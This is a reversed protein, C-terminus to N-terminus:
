CCFIHPLCYASLMVALNKSVVHGNYMRSLGKTILAVGIGGMVDAQKSASFFTFTKDTQSVLKQFVDLAGNVVIFNEIGGPSFSAWVDGITVSLNGGRSTITNPVAATTMNEAGGAALTLSSSSSTFVNTILGAAIALFAAVVLTGLLTFIRRRRPDMTKVGEVVLVQDSHPSVEAVVFNEYSALTNAEADLIVTPDLTETRTLTGSPPPLEAITCETKDSAMSTMKQEEQPSIGKSRKGGNSSTISRLCEDTANAESRKLAEQDWGDTKKAQQKILWDEVEMGDFSCDDDDDHEITPAHGSAQHSLQAEVDDHNMETM